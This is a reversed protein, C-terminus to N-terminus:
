EYSSRVYRLFDNYDGIRDNPGNEESNLCLLITDHSFNAISFWVLHEILIGGTSETMILEQKIAGDDLRVVCSGKICFYTINKSLRAYGGYVLNTKKIRIIEPNIVASSSNGSFKLTSYNPESINSYKILRASKIRLKTEGLKNVITKKYINYLSYIVSVGRLVQKVLNLQYFIEKKTEQYVTLDYKHQLGYKKLIKISEQLSNIYPNYIEKKVDPLLRNSFWFRGIKFDAFHYFILSYRDIFIKSGVKKVRYNAINWLAVHAGKHKVVHVKTFREPVDNIYGGDGYLGDKRNAFCWKLCKNKWWRLFKIGIADRRVSILGANYIGHTKELFKKDTSYNCKCILISRNAFEEMIPEPSSYLFLDSDLYTIYGMGPNKKLLYLLLASKCTWCYETLSRNNKVALLRRDKFESLCVPKVKELKMKMLLDYTVEDMCLVWLTFDPCHEFLSKYLSLGIHLYNKSLITSFNYEM